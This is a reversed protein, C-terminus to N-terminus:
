KLKLDILYIFIFLVQIGFLYKALKQAFGQHDLFLVLALILYFFILGLNLYRM